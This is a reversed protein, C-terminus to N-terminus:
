TAVYYAAAGNAAIIKIRGSSPGIINISTKPTWLGDPNVSFSSDPKLEGDLIVNIKGSDLTASGNNYVTLINGTWNTIVIKTNLKEKWLENSTKEAEQVKNYSMEVVPYFISTM